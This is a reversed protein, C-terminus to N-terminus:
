WVPEPEALLYADCSSSTLGSVVRLLFSLAL